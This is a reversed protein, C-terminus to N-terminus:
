AVSGIQFIPLYLAVVIGGILGGLIVILVPELLSSLGKLGQDVEAEFFEATKGMM